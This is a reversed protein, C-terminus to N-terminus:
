KLKTLDSAIDLSTLRVLSTGAFNESYVILTAVAPSADLVGLLANFEREAAEVNITQTMPTAWGSTQCFEVFIRYKHSM